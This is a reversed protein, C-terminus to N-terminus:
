RLKTEALKREARRLARRSAKEVDKKAHRARWSLSPKGGTDSIALLLGGLLGANKLFQVQDTKRDEPYRGSWFPHEAATSPILDVALLAAALRPARGSAMMLGAGIKVAGDAQVAVVPDVSPLNPWRQQAKDLLPKASEAKPKPNRLADLGGAIFAAALLPRAIRRFSM